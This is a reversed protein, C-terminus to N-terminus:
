HLSQKNICEHDDKSMPCRALLVAHGTSVGSLM